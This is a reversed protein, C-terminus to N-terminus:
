DVNALGFHFNVVGTILCGKDSLIYEYIKLLRLVHLVYSLM